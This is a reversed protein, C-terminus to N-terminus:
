ESIVRQRLARSVKRCGNNGEACCTKRPISGSLDRILHAEPKAGHGLTEPYTRNRRSRGCCGSVVAHIGNGSFDLPEENFASLAISQRFLFNIIQGNDSGHRRM